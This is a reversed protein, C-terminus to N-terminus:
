AAEHQRWHFTNKAAIAARCSLLAGRCVRKMYWPAFQEIVQIAIAKRLLGNYKPLGHVDRCWILDAQKSTEQLLYPDETPIVRDHTAAFYKIPIDVAKLEALSIAYNELLNRNELFPKGLIWDLCRRTTSPISKNVWSSSFFHTVPCGVTTISKIRNDQAARAIALYGGFSMGVIHTNHVNEAGEKELQDLICGIYQHSDREWRLQNEGVRPFEALVVTIDLLRALRLFARWQEKVSVIGGIVLLIGRSSSSGSALYLPASGGRDQVVITKTGWKGAVHQKFTLVAKKHSERRMPTDPCPFSGLTYCAIAKEWHTQTAYRDAADMWRSAWQEEQEDCDICNLIALCEDRQLGQAVAHPLALTKLESLSTNTKTM